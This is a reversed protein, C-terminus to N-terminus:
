GIPFSVTKARDTTPDIEPEILHFHLHCVTAGTSRTDGFRVILGGGQIKLHDVAWNSLKLVATLDSGSLERLEEKHTKCILLLHHKTNTYPWSNTTLLWDGETALIEKKHHNFHEPCFPCNGDAAITEIVRQYEETKAYTPDVVKPKSNSM